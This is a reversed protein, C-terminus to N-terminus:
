PQGDRSVEAIRLAAATRTEVGLKEFIHTLHVKITLPNAGLITAIEPTTKGQAVWSAIVCERPTLGLSRLCDVPVEDRHEEFLLLYESPTRRNVLRVALRGAAGQIEFPKRAFGTGAGSVNEALL